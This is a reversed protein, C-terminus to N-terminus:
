NGTKHLLEKELNNIRHIITEKESLLSTKQDQESEIQPRLNYVIEDQIYFYITFYLWLNIYVISRISTIFFFIIDIVELEKAKVELSAM